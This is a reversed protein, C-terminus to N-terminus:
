GQNKLPPEGWGAVAGFHRVIRAGAENGTECAQVYDKGGVIGSILGAAFADGAGTTDEVEPVPLGPITRSRKNDTIRCGESGLKIIVNKVGHSLFLKSARLPDHEGTLRAAEVANCLFIDLGGLIPWLVDPHDMRPSHVVDLITVIGHNQAKILKECLRVDFLGMLVFFGAVAFVKTNRTIYDEIDLSEVTLTSNSGPAHIFRPQKQRDVLGVSVATPFQDVQRVYRLDIGWREWKMLLLRAADDAGCRAVLATEVGLAALGIAVNSGCGGPTVISKEFSLSDYRPVEEIPYCIIDLTVNGAVVAEM